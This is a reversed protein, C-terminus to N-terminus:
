NSRYHFTLTEERVKVYRGISRRRCDRPVTATPDHPASWGAMPSKM